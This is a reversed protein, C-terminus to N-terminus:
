YIGYFCSAPPLMVPVGGERFSIKAEEVAIAFAELDNMIRVTINFPVFASYLNSFTRFAFSIRSFRLGLAFTSAKEVM